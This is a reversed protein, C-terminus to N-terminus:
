VLADNWTRIVNNDIIYQISRMIRSTGYMKTDLIIGPIKASTIMKNDISVLEHKSEDDGGDGGGLCIAVPFELKM